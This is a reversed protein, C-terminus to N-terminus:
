TCTYGTPCMRRVTHGGLRDKGHDMSWPNGSTANARPSPANGWGSREWRALAPVANYSGVVDFGTTSGTTQRYFTCSPFLSQSVLTQTTSGDAAITLEIESWIPPFATVAEAVERGGLGGAVGGVVGLALLGWGGTGIVYIGLLVAGGGGIVVGGGTGATEPSVTRCGVIQRFTAVNSSGANIRGIKGVQASPIRLFSPSRYMGSATTIGSDVIANTDPDTEIWAELFNAFRYVREGLITSRTITAGPHGGDDTEPLGTAPDIWSLAACGRTIRAM